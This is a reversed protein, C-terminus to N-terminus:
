GAYTHYQLSIDFTAAASGSDSRAKAYLGANAVLRRVPILIHDAGQTATDRALKVGEAILTYTSEDTSTYLDLEAIFGTASIAELVILGPDYRATVASLPILTQLDGTTETTNGNLLYRQWLPRVCATVTMGTGTESLTPASAEAVKAILIINNGAAVATSNIYYRNYTFHAAVAANAASGAGYAINGVDVDGNIAQALKRATDPVDGQIKVHVENAGPAGLATLIHYALAGITVTETDTAATMRIAGQRYKAIPFASTLQPHLHNEIEAVRYALSNATDTALGGTAVDMLYKVANWVTKAATDPNGLMAELTKLNTRVSPDGLDAQVAALAAWLTQGATDPNGLLAEITKLNTRISPNGLDAQIADVDTQVDAVAAVTAPKPSLIIGM